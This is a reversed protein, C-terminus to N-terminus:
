DVVGKVRHVGDVWSLIDGDGAWRTYQEYRHTLLCVMIGTERSYTLQSVPISTEPSVSLSQWGPIGAEPTWLTLFFSDKTVCTFWLICFSVLFCFLFLFSVGM